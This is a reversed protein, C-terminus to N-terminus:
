QRHCCKVYLPALRNISRSDNFAVIIFRRVPENPDTVRQRAKQISGLRHVREVYLDDTDISMEEWLFEGLKHSCDENKIEALGHFM